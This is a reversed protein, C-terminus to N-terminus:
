SKKRLNRKDKYFDGATNYDKLGELEKNKKVKKKVEQISKKMLNETNVVQLMNRPYVANVGDVTYRQSSKDFSKVKYLKKSWNPSLKTFTDKKIPLRVMSGIEVTSETNDILKKQEERFKNRLEKSELLDKPTFKTSSHITKNYSENIKEFVSRIKTIDLGNVSVYKEYMLRVTRNFTEIPSTQRKDYPNTFIHKIGEKKLFTEFEGMMEPGNDSFVNDIDEVLDLYNKMAKVTDESNVSTRKVVYILAYKTFYDIINILSVSAGTIYMSDIYVRSFPEFVLIKKSSKEIPLFLQTVEQNDYYFQLDKTSVKLGEKKVEERFKNFGRFLFEGYFIRDLEKKLEENM